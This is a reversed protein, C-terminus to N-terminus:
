KVSDPGTQPAPSEEEDEPPANFRELEQAYEDADLWRGGVVEHQKLQRNGDFWLQVEVEGFCRDRGSTHLVKRVYYNYEGEEVVSLENHKDITGEIPERCRHNLVYIPLMRGSDARGSFLNIIRQFFSM